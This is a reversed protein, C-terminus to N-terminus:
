AKSDYFEFLAVAHEFDIVWGTRLLSRYFFNRLMQGKSDYVEPYGGNKEMAAKYAAIASSAQRLYEKEGTAAYTLTLVKIHQVGWNSWLAGDQYNPVFTNVWSHMRGGKAIGVVKFPFPKDLKQKRIYSISREFFHREQTKSPHIFGTMLAISWDPAMRQESDAEPSLDELFCGSGESWFTTIIRKKYAKLWDSDYPIIGLKGALQVTKWVIVNDYFASSRIRSDLMSSLTLNQKVFGTKEDYVHHIYGKYLKQISHNYKKILEEAATKTHSPYEKSVSFPYISAYDDPSLLFNLGTLVGYLSDSPYDYINLLTVRRRNVPVITTALQNAQSFAELAYAVSQAFYMERDLFDLSGFGIRPDLMPYYFIGLNRPYFMSFHDGSIVFPYRPNFRIEHIEEAIEKWNEGAVRKAPFWSNKLIHAGCKVWAFARWHLSQDVIMKAQPEIIIVDDKDLSSLFLSKVITLSRFPNTLYILIITLLFLVGLTYICITVLLSITIDFPM